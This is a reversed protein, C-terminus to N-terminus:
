WSHRVLSSFPANKQTIILRAIEAATSSATFISSFRAPYLLFVHRKFYIDLFSEPIEMQAGSKGTFLSERADQAGGAAALAHRQLANRSNFPRVPSPDDQVAPHQEVGFLLNVQRGLAPPDSVQELM